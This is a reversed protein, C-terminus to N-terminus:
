REQNEEVAKSAVLERHGCEGAREVRPEDHETNSRGDLERPVGISPEVHLERRLSRHDIASLGFGCPLVDRAEDVLRDRLVAGIRFANVDRPKTLAADHRQRRDQGRRLLERADHAHAPAQKGLDQWVGSTGPPAENQTWWKAQYNRGNHTIVLEKAGRFLAESSIPTRADREGQPWLLANNLSDRPTNM